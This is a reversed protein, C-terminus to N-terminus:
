NESFNITYAWWPAAPTAIPAQQGNIAAFVTRGYFFPLGWDFSCAGSGDSCGGSGNPGALNSFAADGPNGKFLDDANGVSFNIASQAKNSGVITATLPITSPPCFFSSEPSLCVPLGGDPFFLGSSGSDLFSATLSQGTSALNTTLNDNSDVTFITAKGLVNNLQTGIGFVMSGTLTAAVGAPTPLQLALGNNDVGFLVVPHTVQQALPVFAATCSGGPCTYYAPGPPTGGASPDCSAGCDQPELGMGLIGNAGLSRQNDDDTGAGNNTCDAPIAFGTPDAIAQISVSGAVEGGIRVDAVAVNGWVYSHDVFQVCESVPKGSADTLAPLSPLASALVRLGSSGTDVLIGDVAFCTTTGPQCITVSTFAGNPYIQGAVPGGDVNVPQVNGFVNFPLVTLPLSASASASTVSTATVVANTNAVVSSPAIYTVTFETPNVLLGPGSLNWTVGKADSVTATINLSKGQSVSQGLTPTLFVTVPMPSSSGGGCGPLGLTGFLVVLFFRRM